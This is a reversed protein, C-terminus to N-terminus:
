GEFCETVVFRSDAVFLQCNTPVWFVLAFLQWFWPLIGWFLALHDGIWTMWTMHILM